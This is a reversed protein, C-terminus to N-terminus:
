WLMAAGFVGSSDGHLARRVPTTCSDGFVLEALRPPVRDYLAEVNSVGGGLVICDPDLLNVVEALSSAVGEVLLDITAVCAPDGAAARRAIEPLPLPEGTRERHGREVAPGALFQERCGSLGCYCPRAERGARDTGPMPSHGWEGAVGNRGDRVKGDIVVGGGVGTGLIVGFVVGAGRGAGTVAESLAFCNADNSARVERGLRRALDAVFPRGNLCTSNSNRHLGNVPSTSGPHGVGVTGRSSLERECTEVLTAVTAITAGYDGPPTPLRKRWLTAGAPDIAVTEIKTGGVDVGLRVPATL